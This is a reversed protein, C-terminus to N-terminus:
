GSRSSSNSTLSKVRPKEKRRGRSRRKRLDGATIGLDALAKAVAYDLESRQPNMPLVFSRCQAWTWNLLEHYDTGKALEKTWDRLTAIYDILFYSLREGYRVPTASTQANDPFATDLAALSALYHAKFDKSGECLASAAPQLYPYIGLDMAATVIKSASPSNVIKVLEETLRSPSVSFLLPANKKIQRKVLFPLTFGTSAAYKVGRVMRVPDEVFICKLPIVPTIVRKEIDQVGGVYDLVRETVPDYYLANLTFDRRLADEHITGFSNGVTGDATSRFTCVEFIKRGFVVHVLRFRKGIIRANYFVRKINQPTAATAIDFDKPTKDLLLDRVAGGVIYAEYGRQKLIAIIRRADPDVKGPDISHEGKSYIVAKKVPRGDKDTVYRFLV